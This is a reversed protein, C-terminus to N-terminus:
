EGQLGLITLMLGRDVGEDWGRVVGEQKRRQTVARSGEHVCGQCHLGRQRSQGNLKRCMGEMPLMGSKTTELEHKADPVKSLCM